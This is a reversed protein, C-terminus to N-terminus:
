WRPLTAKRRRQARLRNGLAAGRGRNCPTCVIRDGAKGGLARPLTHDLDMRRPDTMVKTCRPGQIPCPTGLAAPLLRARTTQHTHGLGRATTTGRWRPM